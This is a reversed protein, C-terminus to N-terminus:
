PSFHVTYLQQYYCYSGWDSDRHDVSDRIEIKFSNRRSCGTKRWGIPKKCMPRTCKQRTKNHARRAHVHTGVAAHTHANRYVGCMQSSQLVRCKGRHFYQGCLIITFPCPLGATLYIYNKRMTTVAPAAIIGFPNNKKKRKYVTYYYLHTTTWACLIIRCYYCVLRVTPLPHVFLDGCM